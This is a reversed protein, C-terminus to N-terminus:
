KEVFLGIPELIARRLEPRRQQVEITHAYPREPVLEGAVTAIDSMSPPEMNLVKTAKDQAFTGFPEPNFGADIAVASLISHVYEKSSPAALVLESGGEILKAKWGKAPLANYRAFFEEESMHETCEM